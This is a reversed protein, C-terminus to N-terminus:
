ALSGGPTEAPESAAFIRDAVQARYHAARKKKYEAWDLDMRARFRSHEVDEGSAKARHILDAISM